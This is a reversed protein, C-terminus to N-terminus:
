GELLHPDGLLFIILRTWGNYMSLAKLQPFNYNNQLYNEQLICLIRANSNKCNYNTAVTSIKICQFNQFLLQFILYLPNIRVKKIYGKQVKIQAFLVDFDKEIGEMYSPFRYHCM